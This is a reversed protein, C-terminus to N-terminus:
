KKKKYNKVVEEIKKDKESPKGPSKEEKIPEKVTKKEKPIDEEKKDMEEEQSDEEQRAEEKFNEQKEEPKQTEESLIEELLNIMGEVFVRQRVEAQAKEKRYAKYKREIASLAYGLECGTEMPTVHSCPEIHVAAKAVKDNEVIITMMRVYPKKALEKEYFEAEEMTHYDLKFNIKEM